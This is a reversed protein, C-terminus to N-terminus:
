NCAPDYLAAIGSGPPPVSGKAFVIRNSAADYSWGSVAGGNVTVQIAPPNKPHASLPFSTLPQMLDGIAGDLMSSMNDLQCVDYLTGNLQQAIQQYRIGVQEVTPCPSLGVLGSFSILDLSGHKLSALRQVQQSVPPANQEDNGEDADSLVLLSLRADDRLFGANVGNSLPPTLAAMVPDFFREDNSCTGVIVNSSLANQVNATQPTLLRPQSGDVPFFRGAEDGDAGGPCPSWVNGGVPTMNTTTVAIHFDANALSIRNWLAGLSQQLAHQEESMSGSNDIVILLDVKPSSQQWQDFV